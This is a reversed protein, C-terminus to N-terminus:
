KTIMQLIGYVAVSFTVKRDSACESRDLACFYLVRCEKLAVGKKYFCSHYRWAGAVIVVAKEQEEEWSFCGNSLKTDDHCMVAGNSREFVLVM